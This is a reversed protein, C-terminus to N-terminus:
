KNLCDDEFQVNAEAYSVDKVRWGCPTLNKQSCLYAGWKKSSSDEKKWLTAKYDKTGNTTCKDM